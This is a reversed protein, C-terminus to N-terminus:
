VKFYKKRTTKVMNKHIALAKVYKLIGEFSMEFM